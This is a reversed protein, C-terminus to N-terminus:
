AARGRRVAGAEGEEVMRQLAVLMEREMVYGIPEVLAPGWVLWPLVGRPYSTRGRVVLRCAHRGAPRLHFGWIVRAAPSGAGAATGAPDGGLVLDREPVLVAVPMEPARPHLRIGDGLALRQWRPEVRTANRIRCGILNELMEYSYFGGRGQGMQVLWPWVAAAPAAITIARTYGWRPAPVIEDGPLTMACEAATAGWARRHDRLLPGTVLHAAMRAVAASSRALERARGRDATM